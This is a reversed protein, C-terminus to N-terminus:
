DNDIIKVDDINDVDDNDSKILSKLEKAFEKKEDYLFSSNLGGTSSLLYIKTFGNEDIWDIKDDNKFGFEYKKNIAVDNKISMFTAFGDKGNFCIFKPKYNRIKEIFTEIEEKIEQINMLGIKYNLLSGDEEPKLKRETFGSEYLLKYFQNSSSCYYHEKRAANKCSPVVGVFIVDLNHSRHHKEIGQISNKSKRHTTIRKSSKCRGM